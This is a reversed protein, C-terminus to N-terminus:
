SRALRTRKGAVARAPRSSTAAARHRASAIMNGRSSPAPSPAARPQQARRLQPADAPCHGAPFGVQMDNNEIVIRDFGGDDVGNRVKNFMGIGQMNGSRRPQRPHRRRGHAPPPARGCSSATPISRTASASAGASTTRSSATAARASCSATRAAASSATARGGQLGRRPEHRHRGQARRLPQGGGRRQRGDAPPHRLRRRVRGPGAPRRPGAFKGDQFTIDTADDLRIAAGFAPYGGRDLKISPPVRFDGGKFTLGNVAQREHGRDDRRTADIAVPTKFTADRIGIAATTAPGLM